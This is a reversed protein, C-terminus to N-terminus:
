RSHELTEEENISLQQASSLEAAEDESHVSFM